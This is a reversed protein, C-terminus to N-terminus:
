GAGTRAASTPLPRLGPGLAPHPRDARGTRPAPPPLPAHPTVRAGAVSLAPWVCPAEESGRWREVRGREAAEKRWFFYLMSTASLPPPRRNEAARSRRIM